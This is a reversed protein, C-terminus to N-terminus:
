LTMEEEEPPLEDFLYIERIYSTHFWHGKCRPPKPRATGQILIFFDKVEPDLIAHIVSVPLLEDYARIGDADSGDILLRVNLLAEGSGGQVTIRQLDKPTRKSPQPPLVPISPSEQGTEAEQPDSAAEEQGEQVDQLSVARRQPRVLEITPSRRSTM